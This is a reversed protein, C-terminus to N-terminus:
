LSRAPLRRHMLEFTVSWVYGGNQEASRTVKVHRLTSLGNLADQVSPGTADYDLHDTLEGDYEIQFTGPSQPRRACLHHHDRGGEHWRPDRRRRVVRGQVQHRRIGSLQRASGVCRPALERRRAGTHVRRGSRDLAYRRHEGHTSGRGQATNSPTNTSDTQTAVATAGYGMANQGSVLVKYRPGAALSQGDEEGIVYSHWVTYCRDVARHQGSGACSVVENAKRKHEGTGTGAYKRFATASDEKAQPNSFNPDTDWEVKYKVVNSSKDDGPTWWLKLATSKYAVRVLEVQTPAAPVAMPKLTIPASPLSAAANIASVRVAFGKSLYSLAQADDSQQWLDSITYTYAAGAAVDLSVQKGVRNSSDVCTLPSTAFVRLSESNPLADTATCGPATGAQLM